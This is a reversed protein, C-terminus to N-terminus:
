DLKGLATVRSAGDVLQVQYGNEFAQWFDEQHSVLIILKLISDDKLRRLEEIMQDRGEKDLSGFGEDIIVAEIPRAKYNVYKGIGLALSISVRFKQSGSLMQVAQKEVGVNRNSVWLDLAENKSTEDSRELGLQLAGGSLRDLVENAYEVIGDEAQRLLQQQLYDRGLYKALKKYLEYQGAAVHQEKILRKREKLKEELTAREGIVKAQTERAEDRQQATEYVQQELESKPRQAESSIKALEDSLELLKEQAVQLDTPANRLAELQKDAGALGQFEAQWCDLQAQTLGTTQLQWELSLSMELREVNKAINQKRVEEVRAETIAERQNNEAAKLTGALKELVEASQTLPEKSLVLQRTAEAQVQEASAYDQRIQQELHTPYKQELPQIHGVILTRTTLKDKREDVQKQLTDVFRKQVEVQKSEAEFNLLDNSTPYASYIYAEVELTGDQDIKSRYDDPLNQLAQKAQTLANSQSQQALALVSDLEQKRNNLERDQNQLKKAEAQLTEQQKKANKYLESAGEVAQQAEVQEAQLRQREQELHDPVLEQGCYSCKQEGDVEDFRQIQQKVTKLRVNAEGLNGQLEAVLEKSEAIKPAIAAQQNKIVTLAAALVAQTDKHSRITEGTAKWVDCAKTFSQLWPLAQATQILQAKRQNATTLQEDLDEPFNVLAEEVQKLAEREKVLTDLQGVHDKLEFLTEKAQTQQYGWKVQQEQLAVDKAQAAILAQQIEVATQEHRIAAERLKAVECMSEFQNQREKLLNVLTPLVLQLESWRQAEGKVVEANELLERGAEIEVELQAQKSLMTEWREAAGQWVQLRVLLNDLQGIETDWEAVQESLEKIDAENVEPCDKLRGECSSLRAKADKSLRDAKAFLKVFASLDVLETLIEYRQKNNASILVDSAGQRLLVSTSFAEYNLGVVERVWNNLGELQHTAPIPKGDVEEAADKDREFALFTTKAGKRTVTRKVRYEKAGLRFDFKVVLNDSQHNILREFHQGSGGRHVGFFAFTIADFVASKGSGNPGALVWLPADAFTLTTKERYTVFGELYVRVPIM